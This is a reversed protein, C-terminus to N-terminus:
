RLVGTDLPTMPLRVEFETGGAPRDHVAIQGGVALVSQRVLALGIGMGGTKM